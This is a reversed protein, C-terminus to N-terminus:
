PGKGICAEALNRIMELNNKPALMQQPCLTEYADARTLIFTTIVTILTLDKVMFYWM